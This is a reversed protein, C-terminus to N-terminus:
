TVFMMAPQGAYNPRWNDLLGRWVGGNQYALGRWRSSGWFDFDAGQLLAEVLICVVLIGLLVAHGAAL